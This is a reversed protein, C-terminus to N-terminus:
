SRRGGATRMAPLAAPPREARPLEARAGPAPLALSEGAVADVRARQALAEYLEAFRARDSAENDALCLGRWGLMRVCEAVREDEFRPAGYAGVFRIAEVVDGWAELGTRRPGLALEVAAARLEAVSPFWKSTAVHRAAARQVLAFDLDGLMAEYLESTEASVRAAPYATALVAVLKATEAPTM